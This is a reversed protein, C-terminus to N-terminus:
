SIATSNRHNRCKEGDKLRTFEDYVRLYKYIRENFQTLNEKLYAFEYRLINIM